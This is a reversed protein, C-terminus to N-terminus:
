WTNIISESHWTSRVKMKTSKQITWLNVTHTKLIQPSRVLRNPCIFAFHVIYSCLIRMSLGQLTKLVWLSSHSFPFYSKGVYKKRTCVRMEGKLLISILLVRLSVRDWLHCTHKVKSSVRVSSYHSGLINQQSSNLLLKRIQTSFNWHNIMVVAVPVSLYYIVIHWTNEEM